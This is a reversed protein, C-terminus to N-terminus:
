RNGFQNKWFPIWLTEIKTPDVHKIHDAALTDYIDKSSWSAVTLFPISFQILNDSWLSKKVIPISGRYLTEWFRHTDIGNGQPCAVYRYHSAMEAYQYPSLRDMNVQIKSLDWSHIENVFSREPNTQAFPGILVKDIKSQFIFQSRFNEERGNFDLRRNEIGIPLIQYRNSSFALNQIYISKLSPPLNFEFEYFNRDSNGLILTNGLIRNGYIELFDELFHSPCFISNADEINMQQTFKRFRPSKFQYDCLDAFSDGSLYPSSNSNYYRAKGALRKVRQPFQGDLM